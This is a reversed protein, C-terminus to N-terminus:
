FNLGWEDTDIAYVLEYPRIGADTLTQKLNRRFIIGKM